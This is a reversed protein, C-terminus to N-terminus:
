PHWRDATAGPGAKPTPHHRHGFVLSQESALYAALPEGAGTLSRVGTQQPSESRGNTRQITESRGNTGSDRRAALLTDVAAHSAVVQGVFEDNSVGTRLTLEDRAAEALGRWGLVTWRGARWVTVPGTFRHPGALVVRRLAVRVLPDRRPLRLLLHGGTVSTQDEPGSLERVLCRVLCNLLTHATVDDATPPHTV